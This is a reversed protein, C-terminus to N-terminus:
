LLAIHTKISPVGAFSPFRLRTETGFSNKHTSPLPQGDLSTNKTSRM